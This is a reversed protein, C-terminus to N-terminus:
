LVGNLGGTWGTAAPTASQGNLSIGGTGTTTGVGVGPASGLGPISGWSGTASTIPNTVQSMANRAETCAQQIVYDEAAKTLQDMTPFSLNLGPWGSGVCSLLQNPPPNMINHRIVDNVANNQQYQLVAANLVAQQSNPNCAIKGSAFSAGPILALLLLSLFVPKSKLHGFRNTPLNTKFM